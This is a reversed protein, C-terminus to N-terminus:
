LNVKYKGERRRFTQWLGFSLWAYVYDEGIWDIEWVAVAQHKISSGNIYFEQGCCSSQKCLVSQPSFKQQFSNKVKGTDFELDWRSKNKIRLGQQLHILPPQVSM